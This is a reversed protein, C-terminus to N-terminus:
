RRIGLRAILARYRESDKQKLYELLSRRKGIHKLLGRRSHHDKTHVKFHETLENIRETLLAVQVEPSGTDGEHRQYAEVIARKREVSVPM